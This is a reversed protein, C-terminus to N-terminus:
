EDWSYSGGGATYRRGLYDPWLAPTSAGFDSVCVAPEVHESATALMYALMAKQVQDLETDAAM